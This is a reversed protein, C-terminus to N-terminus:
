LEMRPLNMGGNDMKLLCENDTDTRASSYNWHIPDTGFGKEGHNRLIFHMKPEVRDLGQICSRSRIALPFQSTSFRM